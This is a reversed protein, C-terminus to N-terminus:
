VVWSWAFVSGRRKKSRAEAESRAAIGTNRGEFYYLQWAEEPASEKQSNASKLFHARLPSMRGCDLWTGQFPRNKQPRLYFFQSGKRAVLNLDILPNWSGDM